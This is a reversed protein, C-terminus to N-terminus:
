EISLLLILLVPLQKTIGSYNCDLRILWHQKLNLVLFIMSGVTLLSSSLYFDVIASLFLYIYDGSSGMSSSSYM